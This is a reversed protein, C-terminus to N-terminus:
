LRGNLERVNAILAALLKDNDVKYAAHQGQYTRGSEMCCFTVGMDSALIGLKKFDQMVMFTDHTFAAMLAAPDAGDAEPVKTFVRMRRAAPDSGADFVFDAIRQSFSKVLDRVAVMHPTVACGLAEFPLGQPDPAVKNYVIAAVGAVLQDDQGSMAAASAIKEEVLDEIFVRIRRFDSPDTETFLVVSDCSRLAVRLSTSFDLEGDTDFFVRWSRDPLAHLHESLSKAIRRMAAVKDAEEGSVNGINACPQRGTGGSAILFLNPLNLLPNHDKVAVGFDEVINRYAPQPPPTAIPPAVSLRRWRSMFTSDPASGKGQTSPPSRAAVTTDLYMFLAESSSGQRHLAEFAQEGATLGGRAQAGGLLRESLDGAFSLDIVLVNEEPHDHAYQAVAHFLTTTKGTGGKSGAFLHARMGSAGQGRTRTPTRPEQLCGQLEDVISSEKPPVDCCVLHGSADYLHLWPYGAIEQADIYDLNGPLEADLKAFVVGPHLAALKEIVPELEKCPPCGNICHDVLVLKNQRLLEDLQPQGRTIAVVVGPSAM